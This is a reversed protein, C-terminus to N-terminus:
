DHNGASVREAVIASDFPELTVNVTREATRCVGVHSPIDAIM